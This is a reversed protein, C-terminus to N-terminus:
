PVSSLGRFLETVGFQGPVLPGWVPRADPGKGLEARKGSKWVERLEEFAGPLDLAPPDYYGTPHIVVRNSAPWPAPLLGLTAMVTFGEPSSWSFQKMGVFIWRKGRVIKYHTESTESIM